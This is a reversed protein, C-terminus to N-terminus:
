IKHMNFERSSHAWHAAHFALNPLRNRKLPSSACTGGKLPGNSYADTEIFCNSMVEHRVTIKDSVLWIYIVIHFFSKATSMRDFGKSGESDTLFRPTHNSEKTRM